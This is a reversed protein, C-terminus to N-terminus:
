KGKEALSQIYAKPSVGEASTFIKSFYLADRFGSLIAVNKVSVVGQEMLFIAHKVRQECLYKSYAVGRKKKFLSSLYKANYGLEDAIHAMSLDPDTYSAQTIEVIRAVVDNIENKSVDLRSLSYLLVSECALDINEPTALEQAERWFPILANCSPFVHPKGDLGFRVAFEDARRGHYTIYCYELAETSRICFRDGRCVFFLDGEKIKHEAGNRILVGSGGEVLNISYHEAVRPEAQSAESERVFNLCILDSSRNFNFKCVNGREM